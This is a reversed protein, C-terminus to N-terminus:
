EENCKSFVKIELNDDDFLKKLYEIQEINEKRFNELFSLTPTEEQIDWGIIFQPINWKIYYLYVKIDYKKIIGEILEDIYYFSNNGVNIENDSIYQSWNVDISYDKIKDKYYYDTPSLGELNNSKGIEEIKEKVRENYEEYSNFSFDIYDESYNAKVFELYTMHIQLFHECIYEIYKDKSYAKRLKNLSNIRDYERYEYLSISIENNERMIKKIDKYIDNYINVNNRQIFKIAEVGNGINIGIFM